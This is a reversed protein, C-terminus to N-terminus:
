RFVLVTAKPAPQTAFRVVSSASGTGDTVTVELFYETGARLTDLSLTRITGVSQAAEATGYGNVFKAGAGAHEAAISGLGMNGTNKTFVWKFRRYNDSESFFENEPVTGITGGVISTWDTENTGGSSGYLAWTSTATTSSSRIHFALNTVPASHLKTILTDGTEGFQVPTEDYNKNPYWGTGAGTWGLPMTRDFFSECCVGPKTYDTTGRWLRVLYGTARFQPEPDWSFSAKKIGTSVVTIVPPELPPATLVTCFVNTAYTVGPPPTMEFSLAFVKNTDDDSPRWSLTGYRFSPAVAPAPSIGVYSFAVETTDDLAASVTTENALGAHLLGDGVANQWAGFSLTPHLASRETRVAFADSWPSDFWLAPDGTARVQVTYSADDALNTVAATANPFDVAVLGAAAGASDLVRVVYGTAGSVATWGFAFGTEGAEGSLALGTPQALPRIKASVTQTALIDDVGMRGDGAYREFSIAFEGSVSVDYPGFEYAAGAPIANTLDPMPTLDVVRYFVVGTADSVAVALSCDTKGAYAAARFSLQVPIAASLPEISRTTATGFVKETGMKLGSMGRLCGAFTWGPEDVFTEKSSAGNVPMDATANWKTTCNAFTEHFLNTTAFASVVSIAVNTSYTGSAFTAVNTGADAEAPTWSFTGNSFTAGAIGTFNVPAAAGTAEVQAAVTFSVPDGAYVDGAPAGTVTFVVNQADEETTVSIATSLPSDGYHLGDGLARVQVSYATGASLGALQMSTDTSACSGAVAGDLLVEYGSANAVATWSVTFGHKGVDSGLVGTPAALVAYAPDYVQTVNISDLLLRKDSAASVTEFLLKFRTPAVIEEVYNTGSSLDTESTSDLAAPSLNTLSSVANTGGTASDVLSVSFQTSKAPYAAASFSLVVNASALENSLTIEPSLAWGVASAGGVKISSRTNATNASFSWSDCDTEADGPKASTNAWANNAGSFGEDFLTARLLGGALTTKVVIADSWSSDEYDPSNAAATAKVKATYETDASLGTVTAGTGSVTASGAAASSGDLIEVAYGAAHGVADWVLSFGNEAISSAALNAPADLPEPGASVATVAISMTASAGSPDTASVVASFSGAANPTFTWTSGSVTGVGSDVAYTLTDGDADSFCDALDLSVTTGVTANTVVSAQAAAPPTNAGSSYTQTVLVDGLLARRQGTKTYTSEIKIKIGGSAPLSAAPVTFDHTFTATTPIEDKTTSGHQTLEEVGDAYIQTDTSDYVTVAIGEKGGGNNQYAAAVVVISVAAATNSISFSESAIAGTASTSGLKIGKYGPKVTGTETWTKDYNRNASSTYSWNQDNGDFSEHFLTVTEANASVALLTAALAAVFSSARKM